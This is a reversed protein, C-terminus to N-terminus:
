FFFGTKTGLWTEMINASVFHTGTDPNFTNSYLWTSQGIPTGNYDTLVGLQNIKETGDIIPVANFFTFNDNEDRKFRIEDIRASFYEQKSTTNIFRISRKNVIIETENAM